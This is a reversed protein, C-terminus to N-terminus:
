FYIYTSVKLIKILWCYQLVTNGKHKPSGSIHIKQIFCLEENEDQSYKNVLADKFSLRKKGAESDVM